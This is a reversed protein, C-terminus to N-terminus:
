DRDRRPRPKAVPLRWGDAIRKDEPAYRLVLEAAVDRLLAALDTATTTPRDAAAIRAQPLARIGAKEASARERAITEPTLREPLHPSGFWIPTTRLDVEGPVIGIVRGSVNGRNLRHVAVDGAYLVPELTDRPTAYAPDVEIVVLTGADVRRPTQAWTYLYPTSLSFRQAVLVGKVAMPTPPMAARTREATQCAGLAPLGLLLVFAILAHKM